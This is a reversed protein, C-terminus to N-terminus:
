SKSIKMVEVHSRDFRESLGDLVATFSVKLYTKKNKYYRANLTWMFIKPLVILWFLHGAMLRYLKLGNRYTYFAKWLPNYVAKQQVLTVCDHVFEVNPSFLIDYGSRTIQNTYIMDDAYIFLKEDPYGWEDRVLSVRLFLGVFSSQDVKNNEKSRYLHDSIHFGMRGGIAANLITKINTFPNISPRNMEAIRGDPLYVAAAIGGTNKSIQLNEFAKFAGTKPYADDDYCVLWDATTNEVIWKFGANFGGAGGKNEPLNLVKLRQDDVNSLWETTGDTSANNVILVGEPNEALTMELTKKLRELRNFTVIVAYLRM